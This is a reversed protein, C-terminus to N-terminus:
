AKAATRLPRGAGMRLAASKRWRVGGGCPARMDAVGLQGGGVGIRAAVIVEPVAGIASTDREQEAPGAERDDGLTGNRQQAEDRTVVDAGFELVLEM